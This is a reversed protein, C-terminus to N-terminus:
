AKGVFMEFVLFDELECVGTDHRNGDDIRVDRLEPRWHQRVNAYTGVEDCALIGVEAGDHAIVAGLELVRQRREHLGVSGPVANPFMMM